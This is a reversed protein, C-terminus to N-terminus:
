LRRVMGGSEAARKGRSVKATSAARSAPRNSEFVEAAVIEVDFQLAVVRRDGRRIAPRFFM